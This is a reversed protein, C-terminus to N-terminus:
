SRLLDYAYAGLLTVPNHTKGSILGRQSVKIHRDTVAGPGYEQLFTKWSPVIGTCAGSKPVPAVACTAWVYAHLKEQDAQEDVCVTHTGLRKRSNIRLRLTMWLVNVGLQNGM